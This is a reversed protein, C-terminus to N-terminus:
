WICRTTFAPTTSALALPHDHKLQKVLPKLDGIKVGPVTGQRRPQADADSQNERRGLRPATVSEDRTMAPDPNPHGSAQWFGRPKTLGIRIRDPREAEACFRATRWPHGRRLASRGPIRQLFQPSKSPSTGPRRRLPREAGNFFMARPHRRQRLRLKLHKDKLKAAARGDAHGPAGHFRSRSERSGFPELLDYGAMLEPTIEELTLEQM